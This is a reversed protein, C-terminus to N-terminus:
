SCQGIRVASSGACFSLRRRRAASVPRVRSCPRSSSPRFVRSRMYDFGGSCSDPFGMAFFFGAGLAAGAAVLRGGRLVANGAPDPQDGAQGDAAEDHEQHLEFGPALVDLAFARVGLARGGHLAAAASRGPGAARAFASAPGPWASTRTRCGAAPTRPRPAAPLPVPSPGAAAWGRRVPGASSARALAASAPCTGGGSGFATTAALVCNKRCAPENRLCDSASRTRACIM